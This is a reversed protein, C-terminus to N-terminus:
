GNNGEKERELQEIREELARIHKALAINKPIGLEQAFAQMQAEWKEHWKAEMELRYAVLEEVHAEFGPTTEIDWCPDRQWQRKLDAIEEASRMERMSVAFHHGGDFFVRTVSYGNERAIKAMTQKRVEIGCKDSFHSALASVLIKAQSDEAFKVELFQRVQESLKDDM